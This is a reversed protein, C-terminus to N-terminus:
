PQGGRTDDRRTEGGGGNTESTNTKKEKMTEDQRPAALQMPKKYTDALLAILEDRMKENTRENTQRDNEYDQARACTMGLVVNKSPVNDFESKSELVRTAYWFCNEV